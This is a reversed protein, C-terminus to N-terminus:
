KLNAQKWEAALRNSVRRAKWHSIPEKCTHHKAFIREYSYSDFQIKADCGVCGTNPDQM